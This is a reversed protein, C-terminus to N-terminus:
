EVQAYISDIREKVTKIYNRTEEWPLEKHLKQYLKESDMTSIDAMMSSMEERSINRMRGIMAHYVSGHGGNYSCIIAYYRNTENSVDKWINNSLWNMYGIGMEMNREPNFLVGSTPEASNNYLVRNMTLGAYKPVIQMLGYANGHRNYAKPNFYSETHIIALVVAPRVNFRKCLKEIYPRYQEARKKVHDPVMALSITYKVREKNDAGVITTKEAKKVIEEAARDITEPSLTKTEDLPDKVQNQLITKETEDEQQIIAILQEKVIEAAKEEAREEEVPMVAEVQVNGTEFDVQSRARFDESYSVWEKTTSELFENWEREIQERFQIFLSDQQSYYNAAQRVSEERFSQYEQDRQSTFEEFGTQSFMASFIMLFVTSIM